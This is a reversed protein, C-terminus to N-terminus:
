QMAWFRIGREQFFDRLERAEEVTLEVEFRVVMKKEEKQEPAPNSEAEMDAMIAEAEEEEVKKMLEAEKREAEEKAKQIEVMRKGEQIAKNLDLSRKYEEIAEFSFEMQELTQIDYNIQGVKADIDKKIQNMSASANLWKEDMIQPLTVWEPHVVEQSWYAGIETAKENRRNEEYEKLQEDIVQIPKDIIAILEDVKEKFENYPKLYEKKQRIREDQLATKLRNLRARDEKANKVEGETYVLSTYKDTALAIEDRLQEFNFKIESPLQYSEVEVQMNDSRERRLDKAIDIASM